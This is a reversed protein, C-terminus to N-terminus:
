HPCHETDIVHLDGRPDAHVHQQHKKRGDIRVHQIARDNMSPQALGNNTVQSLPSSVPLFDDPLHPLLFRPFLGVSSLETIHQPQVQMWMKHAPPPSPGPCSCMAACDLQRIKEQWRSTPHPPPLSWPLKGPRAVGDTCPCRCGRGRPLCCSGSDEAPAHARGNPDQYNELVVM